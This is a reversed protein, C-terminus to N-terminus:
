IQSSDATKLVAEGGVRGPTLKIFQARHWDKAGQAWSKCCKVIKVFKAFTM